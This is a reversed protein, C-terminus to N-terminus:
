WKAKQKQKIKIKKNFLFGEMRDIQDHKEERLEKWTRGEEVGVTVADKYCTSVPSPYGTLETRELM